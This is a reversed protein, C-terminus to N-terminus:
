ADIDNVVKKRLEKHNFAEKIALPLVKENKEEYGKIRLHQLCLKGKHQNQNMKKINRKKKKRQMKEVKGRPHTM